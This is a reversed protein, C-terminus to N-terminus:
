EQNGFASQNLQELARRINSKVTGLPMGTVASIDKHSLGKFFSLALLQKQEITLSTLMSQAVSNTQFMEILTDPQNGDDQIDNVLDTAEKIIENQTKNKRIFDLARSRTLVMCWAIVNGKEPHYNKAQQWIQTFVDCVVEQCDEPHNIIRRALGYVKLVLCDYLESFAEQNNEQVALMLNLLKAQEDHVGFGREKKEFFHIHNLSPITCSTEM